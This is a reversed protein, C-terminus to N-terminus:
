HHSIIIHPLEDFTGGHELESGFEGEEDSYDFIYVFKNNNEKIFQYLENEELDEPDHEWDGTYRKKIISSIFDM